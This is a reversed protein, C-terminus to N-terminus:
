YKRQPMCVEVPASVVGSSDVRERKPALAAFLAIFDMSEFFTGSCTLRLSIFNERYKM